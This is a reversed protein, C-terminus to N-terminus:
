HYNSIEVLNGDPDRVYFSRIRGRAGTRDVVKGGELVELGARKVEELADAVPTETLFCLDASGPLPYQAKPEFEKGAEHLNIKHPGFLLAHRKTHPASPPSFTEAKMGLHRTYFDITAPISRVTLVLHDLSSITLPPM